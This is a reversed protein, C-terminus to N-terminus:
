YGKNKQLSALIGPLGANFRYKGFNSTELIQQKIYYLASLLSEGDETELDGAYPHINDELAELLRPDLDNIFYTDLILLDSIQEYFSTLEWLRNDTLWYDAAYKQKNLFCLYSATTSVLDETVRNDPFVIPFRNLAAPSAYSLHMIESRYVSPYIKAISSNLVSTVYPYKEEDKLVIGCGEEFLYNGASDYAANLHYGETAIIKPKNMNELLKKGRISYDSIGLPSDDHRFKRKFELIRNYALPFRAKLEEPPIVKYKRNGREEVLDYPLMFRYSSPYFGFKKSSAGSIYPYVLEPEVVVPKCFGECLYFSESVNEEPIALRHMLGNKTSVGGFISESIDDLTVPIECIKEAIKKEKLFM